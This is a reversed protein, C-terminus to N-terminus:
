YTLEVLRDAHSIYKKLDEKILKKLSKFNDYMDKMQKNLTVLFYEINNPVIIFPATESIENEV